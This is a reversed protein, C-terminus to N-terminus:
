PSAPDAVAQAAPAQPAAGLHPPRGTEDVSVVRGNEIGLLHARTEASGSGDLRIAGSVGEVVRPELLGSVLAEREHHGRALEGLVLSAADFAEAAFTDPPRGFHGRYREVFDVVAPLASAPPLAAPFLAGEVHQRAIAVLGPHNWVSPGLLRVGRVGHFALAPAILGVREHTDPVFIADFDLFPPLPADDPGRIADARTRLEAAEPAPLREAQALLREREALASREASGLLVYGLMRRIPEAFDTLDQPYSGVAVVEGGRLEVADWFARRLERGYADRPYFIAFRRAGLERVAYDALLAVELRPTLGVRFVGPRDRVVDERRTLSVLPLQGRVAAEAAAQSENAALPGLVASVEPRAALEEIAAAAREPSGASDRVLLRMGGGDFVRAALLIGQLSEEAPSAYPGSLPLVVGLVGQPGAGPAPPEAPPLATVPLLPDVFGAEAGGPEAPMGSVRAELEAARRAEDAGLPLERALALSREAGGRDGAALALEAERLRARPGPARRGFQEAARELAARDMSEIVRDIEADIAPLSREPAAAHLQSLWGLRALPDGAEGSLDALLRLARLRAPPDLRSLRLASATRLAAQGNGRRRQLEALLLRAEDSRDGDPHRTVLWTLHQVAEDSRGADVLGRALLLAADDAVPSEGRTAVLERLAVLGADRDRGLLSAASEFAARDADSAAGTGPGGACALLAGALLCALALARRPGGRRL